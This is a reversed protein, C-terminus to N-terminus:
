KASHFKCCAEPSVPMFGLVNANLTCVSDWMRGVHSNEIEKYFKCGECNKSNDRYQIEEKILKELEGRM